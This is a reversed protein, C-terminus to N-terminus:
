CRCRSCDQDLSTAAAPCLSVLRGTLGGDKMQRLVTPHSKSKGTILCQTTGCAKGQSVATGVLAPQLGRYLGQYGSTSIVQLLASHSLLLQCGSGRIVTQDTSQQAVASLQRHSAQANDQRSEHSPVTGACCQLSSGLDLVRSRLHLVAHMRLPWCGMLSRGQRCSWRPM